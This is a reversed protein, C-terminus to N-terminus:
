WQIQELCGKLQYRYQYGLDKQLRKDDFVTDGSELRLDIEPWATKRIECGSLNSIMDAVEALSYTEGGINYTRNTLVDSQIAALMINAIDGVHTFTRRQAGDGYLVITGKRAQKMLFGVTGYSYPIEGLNGYPVCIRFCTHRVRYNDSFIRLLAECSAKNVSYVTKCEKPSDEALLDPGGRYVLRSSPFLVVPDSKADRIAVLANALGLENVRTYTIPDENSSRTGTLGALFIVGDANWDVARMASADTIDIPVLDAASHGTVSQPAPGGFAEVAVGTQRLHLGLNRGLYGNAGFLLVKM